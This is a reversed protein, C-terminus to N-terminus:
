SVQKRIGGVMADVSTAHTFHTLYRGDKDMLFIISSHDMLYDAQGATEKSKAFYIRYARAATAIAENSGTLAVLRPHFNAAYSKLQEPTDRVPDITIFIPQIKDAAQGLRDLAQSMDNLATTCVDPCFSYGFYILMFRGRFETDRREAGNQDVLSFPGGILAATGSGGSSSRWFEVGLVVALVAAATGVIAFIRTRGSM